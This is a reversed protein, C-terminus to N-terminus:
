ATRLMGTALGSSRTPHPTRHQVPHPDVKSLAMTTATHVFPRRTPRAAISSSRAAGASATSASTISM